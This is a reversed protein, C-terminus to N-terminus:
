ENVYAIITDAINILEETTVDTASSVTALRRNEQILEKALRVAEMKRQKQIDSRQQAERAETRAIEAEQEPTLAM